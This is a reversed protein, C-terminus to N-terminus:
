KRTEHDESSRSRTFRLEASSERDETMGNDVMAIREAAEM